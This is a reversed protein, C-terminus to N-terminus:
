SSLLAVTDGERKKNADKKAASCTLLLSVVEKKTLKNVDNNKEVLKIGASPAMERLEEDVVAKAHAVDWKELV